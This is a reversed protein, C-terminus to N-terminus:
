ERGALVAARRSALLHAMALVTGIAGAIGLAGLGLTEVVGGGIASGVASGVYIAAANLALVVSAEDPALRLIRIQQAAMFSWGMLSWVFLLPILAWIPLPLASYLPMTVAVAGLILMLTRMYGIRDALAGGMLNGLVAGVGLILLVLTLGDRGFGMTESLLPALYTYLIFIAGLMSATFLVAGMAIGDRMVQGLDRLRVPAFRLGQPVRVWVLAVALAALVAVMWFAVRWGFTYAIWSGAPVGAVQALSLGFIVAALVKGRNADSALGAAVAASVPTFMGAGAAAAARAILLVPYSTATACGLMGLGFLTMGFALVRRRGIHGTMSVLVPSLLAYSLAYITMLWGAAGRSVSLAEAIPDILGIVIFAGMGIVFNSASLTAIVSRGAADGM